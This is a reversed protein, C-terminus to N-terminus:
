PYRSCVCVYEGDEDKTCLWNVCVSSGIIMDECDELGRCMCSHPKCEFNITKMLMRSLTGQRQTGLRFSQTTYKFAPLRDKPFMTQLLSGVTKEGRATRVVVRNFDIQGAGADFEYVLGRKTLDVVVKKGRPLETITQANVQVRKITTASTATRSDVQRQSRAYMLPMLSTAAVILMMSSTRRM